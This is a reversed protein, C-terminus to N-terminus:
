HRQLDSITGAGANTVVTADVKETATRSGITSVMVFEGTVKEPTITTVLYGHDAGNAYKISKNALKLAGAGIAGAGPSTVSTTVLEVLGSAGAKGPANIAFATHIDGTLIVTDKIGNSAMSTLLRDRAAPYDDWSDLLISAGVVKLPTFVVQNGLVRWKAGRNKSQVLQQDLWAEQDYGLITRKPDNKIWPWFIDTENRGNIRTDLMILDLLKGVQFSRYIHGTQDITVPRIPMYEFYARIANAKRTEWPGETKPDHHQAGDHWADNAFEHDDWVTVWPVNLHAAQLDVDRKYQAHRQRYDDLSTIDKDPQPIRGIKSGDGYGGNKYEYIYDGLHLVVDVDKRNGIGAYANFFGHPLSSCSVVALKYSAVSADAAPLTHTKGVPSTVSGSSTTFRYYYTTGPQLGTIDLKVTHDVSADTLLVGTSVIQSFDATSAVQYQVPVPNTDKTTIKTWIIVANATPDGSAVSHEFTVPVSANAVLSSTPVFKPHTRGLAPINIIPQSYALNSVVPALSPKTASPAAAEKASADGLSLVIAWLSAATILQM